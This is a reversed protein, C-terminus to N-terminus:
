EEEGLLNSVRVITEIQQQSLRSLLNRRVSAAHVPRAL